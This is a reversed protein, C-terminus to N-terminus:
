HTIMKWCYTHVKNGTENLKALAWVNIRTLDKGILTFVM